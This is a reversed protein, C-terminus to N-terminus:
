DIFPKGLLAQVMTFIVFVFYISSFIWVLSKGNSANKDNKSIYFGFTPIIQLAHIGFFHAGRLDGLSTSWNILALGKGGIQGGVNHSNMISMYGGFFSFVVFMILGIKISLALIENISTNNQRIFKITLVLTAVTLLVIMIGMFMYLIGGILETQNFHSLKGRFAQVTIVAQEYIMVIIALYSYKRVAKQDNLYYLLYAMSWAYIWISLAFKIPKIMSNVGLVQTVNVTSYITLLISLILFFTGCFALLRNRRYIESIISKIM